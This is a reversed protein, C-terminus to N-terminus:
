RVIVSSAETIVEAETGKPLDLLDLLQHIKQPDDHLNLKGTLTIPADLERSRIHVKTEIKKARDQM